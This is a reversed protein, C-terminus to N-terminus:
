EKDYLRKELTECAYKVGGNCAKRMLRDAKSIDQQVGEGFGYLSGLYMCGEMIDGNCAKTFPEIAKIMKKNDVLLKGLLYCGSMHGGNCVRTFSDIAKSLDKDKNFYILGITNCDDLYGRECSRTMLKIENSSYNRSADFNAYTNSFLATMMILGISILTKKM